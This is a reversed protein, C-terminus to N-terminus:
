SAGREADEQELLAQKAYCCADLLEQYLDVLASRGNHTELPRGYKQQGALSRAQLDALVHRVVVERGPRPLQQRTTAHETSTPEDIPRVPRAPMSEGDVIYATDFGALRLRILLDGTMREGREYDEWKASPLDFLFACDAVAWGMRRREERLREGIKGRELLSQPVPVPVPNATM